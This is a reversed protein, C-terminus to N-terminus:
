KFIYKGQNDVSVTPPNKHKEFYDYAEKLNEWFKLLINNESYKSKLYKIQEDTIKAPFIHVPVKIQGSNKAEVTILFLENIKDDTIPICGITCCSGHIFIDGGLNYKDGLIRDSKNPYNLGLSLHFNSYPNYRDIYYFGEPVQMDGQKRKPGLKGSFSCFDYNIIHTYATDNKNKAWVELIREHKFGRIYIYSALTDIGKEKYLQKLYKEKETYAERVRKYLKQQKKFGSQSFTSATIFFFLIFIIYFKFKM